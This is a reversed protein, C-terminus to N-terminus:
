RPYPAQRFPKYLQRLVLTRERMASAQTDVARGNLARHTRKSRLLESTLGVDSECVTLMFTCSLQEGRAVPSRRWSSRIEEQTMQLACGHMFSVPMILASRSGILWTLLLWWSPRTKCSTIVKVTPPRERLRPPAAHQAQVSGISRHSPQQQVLRDYHAHVHVGSRRYARPRLRELALSTVEHMAMSPRM